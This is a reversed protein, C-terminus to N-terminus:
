LQSVYKVVNHECVQQVKMRSRLRGNANAAFHEPASAKYLKENNLTSSSEFCGSTDESSEALENSAQFENKDDKISSKM